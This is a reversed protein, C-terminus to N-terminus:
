YICIMNSKFMREFGTYQLINISLIWVAIFCVCAYVSTCVVHVCMCEGMCMCVCVYAGGMYEGVWGDICM